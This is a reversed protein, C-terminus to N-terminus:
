NRTLVYIPPPPPLNVILLSCNKKRFNGPKAKAAQKVTFKPRHNSIKAGSHALVGKKMTFAFASVAQPSALLALFENIKPRWIKM